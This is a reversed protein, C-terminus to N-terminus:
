GAITVGSNEMKSWTALSGNQKQCTVAPMITPMEKSLVTLKKLVVYYQLLVEKLQACITLLSPLLHIPNVVVMAERRAVAMVVWKKM